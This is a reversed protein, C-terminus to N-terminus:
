LSCTEQIVSSCFYWPYYAFYVLYYYAYNGLAAGYYCYVATLVGLGSFLFSVPFFRGTSSAGSFLLLQAPQFFVILFIRLLLGFFTILSFLSLSSAQLCYWSDYGSSDISSIWLIKSSFIIALLLTVITESGYTLNAFHIFQIHSHVLFSTTKATEKIDQM